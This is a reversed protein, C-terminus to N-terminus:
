CNVECVLNPYRAILYAATTGRKCMNSHYDIIRLNPCSEALKVLSSDILNVSFVSIRELTSSIPSNCLSIIAAESLSFCSELGISTINTVNDLFRRFGTDKLGSPNTFQISRLNPFNLGINAFNDIPTNSHFLGFHKISPSPTSQQHCLYNASLIELHTLVTLSGLIIQVQEDRVSPSDLTLHELAHLPQILPVLHAYSSQNISLNFSRLSTSWATPGEHLGLKTIPEASTILRLHSLGHKRLAPLDDILLGSSNLTLSTLLPCQEFLSDVPHKDNFDDSIKLTTLAAPLHQPDYRHVSSFDINDLCKMSRFVDSVEDLEMYLSSFTQLTDTCAELIGRIFAMSVTLSDLHLNTLVPLFGKFDHVDGIDDNVRLRELRITKLTPSIAKFFNAFPETDMQLQYLTINTLSKQQQIAELDLNQNARINLCDYQPGLALLAPIAWDFKFLADITESPLCSIPKNAFTRALHAALSPVYRSFLLYSAFPIVQYHNTFSRNIFEDIITPDEQFITELLTGYYPEYNTDYGDTKEGRRTAAVASLYRASDLNRISASRLITVAFVKHAMRRQDADAKSLLPLLVLMQHVSVSTLILTSQTTCFYPAYLTASELLVPIVLVPDIALLRRYCEDALAFEQLVGHVTALSIIASTQNASYSLSTLLSKKASQALPREPRLKYQELDVLGILHYLSADTTSSRSALVLKSACDVLLSTEEDFEHHFRIFDPASAPRGAYVHNAYILDLARMYLSIGESRAIMNSHKVVPRVAKIDTHLVVPMRIGRELAKKIRSSIKIGTKTQFKAIVDLMSFSGCLDYTTDLEEPALGCAEDGGFKDLFRAKITISWFEKDVVFRNINFIRNLFTTVTEICKEESGIFHGSMMARQEEKLANKLVRAVMEALLNRRLKDPYTNSQSPPILARIRGLHRLNIGYKHAEVCVDWNASTAGDKWRQIFDEAARPIVVQYLHITADAVDQNHEVHDPDHIGWGTFADSSLPKEFSKVLEPRLLKFFVERHAIATGEHDFFAQPPLLRAFDLAYFENSTSRHIEFDGPGYVSKPNIGSMHKRLNMGIGIKEMAETIEQVDDHVTNGGDCSGYILTEKTIPLLSIAVGRLENGAAKSAGSDSPHRGGYLWSNGIKQDYAFKFLINQCIFKEGGAVGGIDIPPITRLHAPMFMEKIIIFGYNEAAKVFDMAMFSLSQFKALSPPLRLLRQFEKNWDRGHDSKDHRAFEEEEDEINEERQDEESNSTSGANYGSYLSAPAYSSYTTSGWPQDKGSSGDSNYATYTSATSSSQKGGVASPDNDYGMVTYASSADRNTLNPKTM